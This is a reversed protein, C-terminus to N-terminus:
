GSVEAEVHAAVVDEGREGTRIRVADIVEYVFIKGDGMEGTRAHEAIVHLARELDEDAVVTDLRLKPRLYLSRPDRRPLARRPRAPSGLGHVDSVSLSPLGIEYLRRPDGRAGRPPHVGRDEEHDTERSRRPGPRSPTRRVQAAGTVYPQTAGYGPLFQEPYGWM